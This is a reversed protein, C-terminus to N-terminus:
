IKLFSTFSQCQTPMIPIDKQNINIVLFSKKNYKTITNSGYVDNNNLVIKTNQMRLFEVYRLNVLPFIDVLIYIEVHGVEPSQM